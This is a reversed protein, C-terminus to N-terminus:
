EGSAEDLALDIWTEEVLVVKEEDCADIIADEHRGFGLQDVTENRVHFAVVRQFVLSVDIGVQTDVNRTGGLVSDLQILRGESLADHIRQMQCVLTLMLCRSVPNENGVLITFCPFGVKM